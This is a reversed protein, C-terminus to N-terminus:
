KKLDRYLFTVIQARTCDSYPSFTSAGTGSTIGNQAAWQVADYYYADERVDTFNAKVTAESGHYRYLFTVVQSRTCAADPNFADIGTGVTINNEAAWLVARYYYDREQVDRFPNVSTKPQPSGAARWLFTVAQARTCVSDPSFTTDTTGSTVSHNVAWVVADYFYDASHVDTFAIAAEGSREFVANVIVRGNPMTFCYKGGGADAIKVEAGEEDMVTLIHLIYGEDPTVAITVIDGKGARTPSATITGHDGGITEVAYNAYGASGGSSGGQGTQGGNPHKVALELRITDSFVGDIVAAARIVTDETITIPSNYTLATETCPCTDNLTYRIAAGQTATSLVIRAGNELTMGTTVLTGDSLAATVPEPEPHPKPTDPLDAATMVIRVSFIESLGSAPETVRIQGVGPLLGTITVAATGDAGTTVTQTSIHLLSPTLSEVTLPTEAAGNNLIIPLTAAEHIVLSLEGATIATPRQVPAPLIQNYQEKVATGAYNMAGTSISLAGICKGDAPTVAFRTAYQTTGELDFEANLAEVGAAIETEGRSLTIAGKVSPIDMYQSFVVEIRDTYVTVNEVAPADKSVMAVNVGFQPPPVPLWGSYEINGVAAPVGSSDAPQYGDKTFCIKWQGEPVFWTYAGDAATIQPNLQDYDAANWQIERGETDRYFVTAAVGELRNSPVAEYVYGSPDLIPTIEKLESELSDAPLDWRPDQPDCQYSMFVARVDELRSYLDAATANIYNEISPATYLALPMQNIPIVNGDADKMGNIM